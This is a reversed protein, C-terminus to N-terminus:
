WHTGELKVFYEWFPYGNVNYLEKDALISLEAPYKLSNILFQYLIISDQTIRTSAAATRGAPGAPVGM